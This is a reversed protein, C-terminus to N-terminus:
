CGPSLIWELRRFTEELTAQPAQADAVVLEVRGRGFPRWRARMRPSVAGAFVSVVPTSSAAAAHGAASDYGVFVRSRAIRSAFEAFSGEFTKVWPSGCAKVAKDVRMAEEPDGGKDVLVPGFRALSALLEAEFPDGLRKAPNGGVGLSVTIMAGSSTEPAPQPAVYPWGRVGFTEEVWRGALLGLPEDGERGYSRSEFFFYRDESCVPLLGLQTLRSDPDVVISDPQDVLARLRSWVALRERLRGSREYPLLIPRIRPDAAFLQHSKPGGVLAIEAAPFARELGDLIPSTVAIDAGLTVRSLVFIRKVASRDGQFVRPRRVRQYRALLDAPDVDPYTIAIVESFLEAYTDCLRPEFRDALGEVLVGFLAQSAAQARVPDPHLAEGVLRRM